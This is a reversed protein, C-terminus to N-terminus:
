SINLQKVMAIVQQPTVKDMCVPNDRPCERKFCPSCDQKDYLVRWYPSVPSTSSPDTPGFIAVGRGGIAASLHMIGSDNAVCVRARRLILMLEELSTAGALNFAKEPPLGELAQGSMERESGTGLAAVQGGEAIWAAAVERFYKAPWRKSGGYAAGAALCMLKPSSLANKAATNEIQAPNPLKFEPMEGQWAPAGLAYAMSLYKEAHHLENLTHDLRPPFYFSRTLLLSRNRASAGFLRPLGALRFFFADRFSNNFMLGIGAHLRNVRRIDTRNWNCHAKHLCITADVMPITSYFKELAPPTVVFMGCEKPIIKKLVCLAPLTMVADGLWNPSRLVLGNKWDDTKINYVPFRPAPALEPKSHALETM